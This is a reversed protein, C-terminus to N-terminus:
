DDEVDRMVEDQTDGLRATDEAEEDEEDEEDFEEGEGDEQQDDGDEDPEDDEDMDGIEDQDDEEDQAAGDERQTIAEDGQERSRDAELAREGGRDGAAKAAAGSKKAFFLPVTMSNMGRLRRGGPKGHNARSTIATMEKLTLNINPVPINISRMAGIRPTENPLTLTEDFGADDVFRGFRIALLKTKMIARAKAWSGQHYWGAGMRECEPRVPAESLLKSLVADHLDCVQWVKGDDCYSRGDFVHTDRRHHLSPAAPASAAGGGAAAAEASELPTAIHKGLRAGEEVTTTTTAQPVADPDEEVTHWFATRRDEFKHLKFQMTQYQRCAPDTRPDIGYRVLTDRWPGGKFQYCVHAFYPKLRNETLPLGTAAVMRNVLGRRTWIPREEVAQRMADLIAVRRRGTIPDLAAPPGTPVPEDDFALQYGVIPSAATSNVLRVAGDHSSVVEKVFPNQSYFYPFPLATTTFFPPPPLDVNPPAAVGPTISFKRLKSFEGPLINEAVKAVFESDHTSQQFDALGRYRHSHKVIGLVETRYQGATEQLKHRLQAADRGAMSDGALHKTSAGTAASGAAAPVPEWPGNTGRRRRRGTRKPLHVALVVNHTAASHSSLMGSMPDDRRLFMPVSTQPDSPHVIQGYDARGGFSDLGRQLSTLLAPHEVAAMQRRPIPLVPATDSVNM